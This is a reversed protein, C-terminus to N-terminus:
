DGRATLILVYADSFLRVRRCVELGDFGPLMLDLLVLDPRHTEATDVASPGDHALFVEYGERTFYSGVVTALAKEDDVILVKVRDPGDTRGARDTRDARDARARGDGDVTM